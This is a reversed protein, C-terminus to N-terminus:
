TIHSKLPKRRRPRNINPMQYANPPKLPKNPAVPEDVGGYGKVRPNLKVKGWDKMGLHYDNDPQYNGM